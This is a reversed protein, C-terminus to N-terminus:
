NLIKTFFAKRGAARPVARDRHRCGALVRHTRLLKTKGGSLRRRERHALHAGAGYCSLRRIRVFGRLLQLPLPVPGQACAWRSVQLSDRPCIQFEFEMRWLPGRNCELQRTAHVGSGPLCRKVWVCQSPSGVRPGGLSIVCALRRGGPAAWAKQERAPRPRKGLGSGSPRRQPQALYRNVLGRWSPDERGTM